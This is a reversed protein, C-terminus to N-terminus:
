KQDFVPNSMSLAWLDFLPDLILKGTTLVYIYGVEYIKRCTYENQQALLPSHM